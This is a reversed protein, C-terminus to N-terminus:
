LKRGRAIVSMWSLDGYRRSDSLWSSYGAIRYGARAIAEGKSRAKLM